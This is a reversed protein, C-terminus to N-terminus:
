STVLCTARVAAAVQAVDQTPMGPYFPLSLVRACAAEAVPFPPYDYGLSKIAPQQHLGLPYHVATPIDQAILTAQVAARDDVEITYQAYSSTNDALVTPLTMEQGLLENYQAAM